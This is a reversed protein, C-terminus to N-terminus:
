VAAEAGIRSVAPRSAAGPQSQIRMQTRIQQVFSEILQPDLYRFLAFYVALVAASVVLITMVDFLPRVPMLSVLLAGAAGAVGAAILPYRVARFLVLVGRRSRFACASHGVSVIWSWLAVAIATGPAHAYWTLPTVLAFFTIAYFVWLFFAARFRGEVLMMSGMPWCVGYLVPGLSLWRVLPTAAAWKHAFLLRIVPGALLIQLLAVPIITAALMNSARAVALHMRREDDRVTNLAPTLVAAVNDSVLRIVQTSLTFAFFYQGIVTYDALLVGLVLYDGQSTFASLYRLGFVWGTSAMLARWRHVGLNLRVQPRVMSWLTIAKLGAVIPVPVVFSYAGLGIAAFAITLAQRTVIEGLNISALRAFDLHSRLVTAPVLTLATLPASCALIMMMSAISPDGFAANGLQRGVRPVAGGIVAIVIASAIGCTLSLWFAATMWRRLHKQKQLLVEDVGPSTLQDAFSTITYVLGIRGFDKPDLLWALVLQSLLSTLRSFVTQCALWLAGRMTRASLNEATTAVM